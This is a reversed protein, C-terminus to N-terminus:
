ASRANHHSARSKGVSDTTWTSACWSSFRTPDADGAQVKWRKAGGGFLIGLLGLAPGAAMPAWRAFGTLGESVDGSLWGFSGSYAAGAFAAAAVLYALVLLKPLSRAASPDFWGRPGAPEILTPRRVTALVGLLLGGALILGILAGAIWQKPPVRWAWQGNRYTAEPDPVFRDAFAVAEGARAESQGAEAQDVARAAEPAVIGRDAAGLPTALFTLTLLALAGVVVGAAARGTPRAIPERTRADLGHNMRTM